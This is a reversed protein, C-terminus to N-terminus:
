RRVPREPMQLRAMARVLKWFLGGLVVVIAVLGLAAFVNTVGTLAVASAFIQIALLAQFGLVAWYKAKWMGIACAVLILTGFIQATLARSEDGKYDVLFAAIVSGAAYLAAIGVAVTVAGPREGPALPELQARIAENRAEGRVRQPPAAAPEPPKPSSATGSRKRSRRGM